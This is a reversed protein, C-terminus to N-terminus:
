ITPQRIWRIEPQCLMWEVAEDGTDVSTVDVPNAGLEEVLMRCLAGLVPGVTVTPLRRAGSLRAIHNMNWVVVLEAATGISGPLVITGSALDTLTGIRAALTPEALEEGVFRNAGFRDRFLEPAVVGVVRGGAGSAGKSAAEMTGAYGGTM